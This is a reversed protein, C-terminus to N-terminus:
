LVEVRKRDFHGRVVEEREQREGRESKEKKKESREVERVVACLARRGEVRGKSLADGGGSLWGGEWIGRRGVENTYEREDKGAGGKAEPGGSGM